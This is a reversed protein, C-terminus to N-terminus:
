RTKELYYDGLYNQSMGTVVIRKRIFDTPIEVGFYEDGDDKWTVDVIKGEFICWGHEFPIGLRKSTALGEVYKLNPNDLVLLQANYYCNKMKPKRKCLWNRIRKDKKYDGLHEKFERGNQLLFNWYAVQNTMNANREILMKVDEIYKKPNMRQEQATRHMEGSKFIYIIWVVFIVGAMLGALEYDIM